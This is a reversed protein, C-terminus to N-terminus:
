RKRVVTGLLVAGAFALLVQLVRVVTGATGDLDVALLSCSVVVLALGAVFPAVQGPPLPSTM